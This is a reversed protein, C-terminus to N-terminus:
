SEKLQIAIKRGFDECKPIESEVVPGKIGGVKISLSLSPQHSSFLLKILWEGEKM